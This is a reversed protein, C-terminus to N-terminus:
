EFQAGQPIGDFYFNIPFQNLNNVKNVEEAQIKLRPVAMWSERKVNVMLSDSAELSLVKIAKKVGRVTQLNVFM